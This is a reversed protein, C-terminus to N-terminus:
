KAKWRFGRKYISSHDVKSGVRVGEKMSAHYYYINTCHLLKDMIQRALWEFGRMYYISAHDVKGVM